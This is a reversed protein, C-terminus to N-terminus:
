DSDSGEGDASQDLVNFHSDLHVDVQSGDDRTVEVEYYGEEDQFETGSVRGGGAHDVAVASARDLAAGTIPKGSGDDGKGGGDDGGGTAGAFAAGGLGLAAVAAAALIGRKLKANMGGNDRFGSSIFIFAAGRPV